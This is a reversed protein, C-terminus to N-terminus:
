RKGTRRLEIKLNRIEGLQGEISVSQVDNRVTSTLAAEVKPGSMTFRSTQDRIRGVLTGHVGTTTERWSGDIIRGDVKVNTRILVENATSVCRMSQSAEGLHPLVDLNLRCRIAESKGSVLNLQGQGRWQGAFPMIHVMDNAIAKFAPLLLAALTVCVIFVTAIMTACGRRLSHIQKARKFM